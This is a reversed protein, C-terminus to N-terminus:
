SRAAFRDRQRYAIWNSVDWLDSAPNGTLPHTQMYPPPGFEPTFTSREFGRSQQSEWILDWWREHAELEKAYADVRPDPVQPGEMYGVRGHVHVAREACQRIIDIQDNILRECVCVWHSFDCCLNLEDFSDLLTSTTWPNYLIRGRHTEHAVRAGLDQEIALVETYYNRADDISFADRGDHCTVVIPDFQMAETLQQRFSAIHDAVSDGATFIMPVIEFDHKGLLDKYEAVPDLFPLAIEVGAFGADEIRQFVEEWPKDIGWLQRVLVLDM